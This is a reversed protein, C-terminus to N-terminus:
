QVSVKVGTDNEVTPMPDPASVGRMAATISGKDFLSVLEGTRYVIREESEFANATRLMRLSNDKQATSTDSFAYTSPALHVEKEDVALVKAVTYPHTSDPPQQLRVVVLDGVQPHELMVRYRTAEGIQAVAIAIGIVAILALGSYTYLPAREKKLEIGSFPTAPSEKEPLYSAQCNGCQLWLKRAYPFLPIWYMHFYRFSTFSGMPGKGCKLCAGSNLPKVETTKSRWGYIIM